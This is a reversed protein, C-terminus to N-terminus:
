GGIVKKFDIDNQYKKFLNDKLIINKYQVDVSFLKKLYELMLKKNEILAYYSSLSYLSDVHDPNINLAIKYNTEMETYQKLGRFCNGLYFYTNYYKKNLEIVKKFSDIADQFLDSDFYVVGLNMYSKWNNQDNEISKKYTEIAKSIENNEQYANGLGLYIKSIIDKDKEFELASIYNNIAQNYNKENLFLNALNFYPLSFTKNILISTNFNNKALQKNNLYIYALGLDNYTIYWNKNLKISQLFNNVSNQYNKLQFYIKGKYYFYLYDENKPINKKIIELKNLAQTYEGNNVLVVLDNFDEANVINIFFILYINLLIIKKVLNNM